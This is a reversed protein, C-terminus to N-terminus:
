FFAASVRVPDHDPVPDEQPAPTKEPLPDQDPEPLPERHLVSQHM